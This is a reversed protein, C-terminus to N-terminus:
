AVLNLIDDISWYTSRYAPWLDISLDILWLQQCRRADGGWDGTWKLKENSNVWLNSEIIIEWTICVRKCIQESLMSDNETIVSMVTNQRTWPLSAPCGNETLVGSDLVTSSRLFSILLVFVGSSSEKAALLRTRHFTLTGAPSLFSWRALALADQLAATSSISPPSCSSGICSIWSTNLLGGALFNMWTM